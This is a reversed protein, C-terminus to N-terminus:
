GGVVSENPGLAFQFDTVDTFQASDITYINAGNSPTAHAQKTANTFDNALIIQKHFGDDPQYSVTGRETNTYLPM